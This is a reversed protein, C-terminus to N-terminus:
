GPSLTDSTEKEHGVKQQMTYWSCAHAAASANRAAAAAMGAHAAARPAQHRGAAASPHQGLGAPTGTAADHAITTSHRAGNREVQGAVAGGACNLGEEGGDHVAAPAATSLGMGQAVPGAATCAGWSSVAARAQVEKVSVDEQDCDSLLHVLDVSHIVRATSPDHGQVAAAVGGGANCANGHGLVVVVVAPRAQRQRQIKLGSISAM